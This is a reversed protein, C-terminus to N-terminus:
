VTKFLGTISNVDQRTIEKSTVLRVRNGGAEFSLIGRRQFKRVLRDAPMGNVKFIIINTEVSEPNISAWSMTALTRALLKANVHDENLRDINNKLAYYGAAALIGAQRMGGGLMKRVTRAQQIFERSGVIMAGVPAGLGKSLCFSVTDAHACIEKVPIGTAVAANFLRAGDIHVKLHHKHAFNQVDKLDDRFYCTGGAENHTNEIVIMSTKSDYYPSSSPKIYERMEESSLIGRDGPVAIPTVGAIVAPAGLEYHLIHSDKHLLVDHGRGGNIFLPILNAMSGSPVFLAGKKGTLGAAYEELRNVSPDEGYVDDGVEAKYMVKRMAECPKTITDSRLDYM